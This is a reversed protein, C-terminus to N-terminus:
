SVSSTVLALAVSHGVNKKNLSHIVQHAGPLFTPKSYLDSIKIHLHNIYNQHNFGPAFEALERYRNSSLIHSVAEDHPIGSLVINSFNMNYRLQQCKSLSKFHFSFAFNNGQIEAKLDMTLGPVQLGALVLEHCKATLDTTNIILGDLGFICARVRTTGDELRYLSRLSRVPSSPM